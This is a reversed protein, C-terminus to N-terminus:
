FLHNFSILHVGFKNWYIQQLDNNMAMTDGSDSGSKGSTIRMAIKM